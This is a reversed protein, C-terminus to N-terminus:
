LSDLTAAFERAIEDKHRKRREARQEATEDDLWKEFALHNLRSRYEVASMPAGVKTVMPVNCAPCWGREALPWWLDCKVCHRATRQGSPWWVM